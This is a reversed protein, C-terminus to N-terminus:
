LVAPLEHSALVPDTGGGEAVLKTNRGGVLRGPQEAVEASRAPPSRKRQILAQGHYKTFFLRLSHAAKLAAVAGTRIMSTVGAAARPWSRCLPSARMAVSV